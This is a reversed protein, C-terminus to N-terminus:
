YNLSLLDAISASGEKLRVEAADLSAQSSL